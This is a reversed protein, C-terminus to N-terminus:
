SRRITSLVTSCDLFEIARDFPWSLPLPPRFDAMALISNIISGRVLNSSTVRAERNTGVLAISYAPTEDVLSLRKRKRRRGSSVAPSSPCSYPTNSLCVLTSSSAHGIRGGFSVTPLSLLALATIIQLSLPRRRLVKNQM